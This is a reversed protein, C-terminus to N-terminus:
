RNECSDSRSKIDPTRRLWWPSPFGGLMAMDNAAVPVVRPGAPVPAGDNRPASDWCCWAHRWIGDLSRTAEVLM